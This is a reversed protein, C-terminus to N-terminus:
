GRKGTSKKAAESDLSKHISYWYFYDPIIPNPTFGQVWLRMPLPQRTSIGFIFPAEEYALRTLEFYLKEREKPDTELVAREVLKTAAPNNYGYRNSQAGDKHLYTFAFNHPDPFDALWATYRMPLKNHSEDTLLTSWQIPRVDVRFKPNIFEINKKFINSATQRIDNGANFPLVMKFGTQWLKGGFAKKFHEVAKQPAAQRIPQNNNYGILDPPIVGRALRATGRYIQNVTVNQDYAYSFGLRVDKDTFFDAPIGNGDLKGSGAYPNGKTNIKWNFQFVASVDLVPVQVIKVDPINAVQPELQSSVYISDVDGKELLLRRTAFEDIKKIVIRKLKAPTRWYGEHRVLTIQKTNKDWSEFMFAGSGNAHEFLYSNEKKPNNFKKWAAETGDWEGNAVAWKKNICYTWMALVSLFPAYPKALRITLKSGEVRIRENLKKFDLAINGNKDRTATDGAIPELLLASPGGARDAIMFRMLSYKVDDATLEAGDHFKVGKRVNFTYSTGDASILGNERTPVELALHPVLEKVSSGKFMVLQEYIQFIIQHSATDYAYAPDLSDIDGITAYVFTDPNKITTVNSACLPLAALILSILSKM